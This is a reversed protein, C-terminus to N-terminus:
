FDKKNVNCKCNVGSGPPSILKKENSIEKLKREFIFDALQADGKSCSRCLFVEVKKGFMHTPYAFGTEIGFSHDCEICKKWFILPFILRCKHEKRPRLRM